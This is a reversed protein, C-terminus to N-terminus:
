RTSLAMAQRYIGASQQAIQGPALWKAARSQASRGMAALKDADSLMSVIAAATAAIDAVPVIRGDIRDRIMESNGYSDSALVPMGCAMAEAISYAFNEFRSAVVCIASRLRLEALRAPHQPGLFQIRARAQEPLERSVFEEFHVTTGDEQRLGSDPGAIVLSLTPRQELALAFARMVIDAGKRLDIRGVCLIQDPQAKRYNWTMQEPVAVIPNPIVASVPPELAYRCVMERLLTGSPCTVAQVKKMAAIEAVERLDGLKREEPSEIPERGLAHPGHLREVIPVGRGVLRGAWGFSEEMEFIQVGARRAAHFARLIQVRAMPYCGDEGHRAELIERLRAVPGHLRPLERIVGDVGEITNDTVVVVSHGISRLADRMLRTYTVIGNPVGSDPLAPSYFGICLKSNPGATDVKGRMLTGSALGAAKPLSSACPADSAM